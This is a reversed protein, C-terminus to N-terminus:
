HVLVKDLDKRDCDAETTEPYGNGSLVRYSKLLLNTAKYEYHRLCSDLKSILSVRRLIEDKLKIQELGNTMKEVEDFLTSLQEAVDDIREQVTM